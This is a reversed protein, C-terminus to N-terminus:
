GLGGSFWERVEPRDVHPQEPRALPVGKNVPVNVRINRDFAEEWRSDDPDELSHWLSLDVLQLLAENEGVNIGYAETTTLGIDWHLLDPNAAKIGGLIAADTSIAEVRGERLARVCGSITLESQVVNGAAAAATASTATALSCVPKGRLDELTAVPAHDARTLVSQETYLYAASFAVGPTERREETISFSAIVLDVIVVTTGDPTEAQMRERDESQIQYFEVENRRFGLDEAVMYAIEIDFGAFTGDPRREAIGPQDFKVGIKLSQKGNLGADGRLEDVSPTRGLFVLSVTIAVVLVSLGVLTVFRFRMWLPHSRVTPKEDAPAAVEVSEGSDEQDSM